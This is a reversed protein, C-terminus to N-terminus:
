FYGRIGPNSEPLAKKAKAVPLLHDTSCCTVPLTYEGPHTEVTRATGSPVCSPHKARAKKTHQERGKEKGNSRAGDVMRKEPCSHAAKLLLWCAQPLKKYIPIFNVQKVDNCSHRTQALM